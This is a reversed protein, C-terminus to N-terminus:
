TANAADPFAASLEAVAGILHYLSTARAPEVVLADNEDLQDFWLGPAPTALFRRLGNLAPVIQDDRGATLYARIREAQAWLRAVPDHVVGDPLVANVAVGRRHDIGHADAFAILREAAASKGCGHLRAWRDLLFAWEYHHGPECIRGSIGPAPTWDAAFFERLAGTEPEILKELCVAVIDDAMKRWGPDADLASWALASELLHMHPNARQLLRGDRDELFGGLPHAYNQELSARLAAARRDWGAVSGFARHAGAYALLAFAQDYLDFQPHRCEGDLDVVSVVTADAAAFYKQFYDLAHQAAERWPGNWGLRGAECYSFAQRAITRARHPRALPKGDLDIAEHFGGRDRDAGVEWWLPLACDFLWGRLAAAEVAVCNM